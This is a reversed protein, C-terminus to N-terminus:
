AEDDAGDREGEAAEIAAREDAAVGEITWEASLPAVPLAGKAALRQVVSGEGAGGGGTIELQAVAKGMTRDKWDKVVQFALRRDAVDPRVVLEEGDAGKVVQELGAAILQEELEVVERAFRATAEAYGRAMAERTAEKVMREMAKAERLEAVSPGGAAPRVGVEVSDVFWEGDKHARRM